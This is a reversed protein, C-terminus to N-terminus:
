RTTTRGAVVKLNEPGRGDRRGGGGDGPRVKVGLRPTWEILRRKWYHRRCLETYIAGSVAPSPVPSDFWGNISRPPQLMAVSLDLGILLSDPRQAVRRREFLDAVAALDAALQQDRPRHPQRTRGTGACALLITVADERMPERIIMGIEVGSPPSRRLGMVPNARWLITTPKRRRTGNALRYINRM